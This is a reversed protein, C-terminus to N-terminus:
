YHRPRKASNGVEDEKVFSGRRPRKRSAGDEEEEDDEHAAGSAVEAKILEDYINDIQSPPRIRVVLEKRQVDFCADFGMRVPTPIGIEPWAAPTLMRRDFMTVGGISITSYCHMPRHSRYMEARITIVDRQLASAWALQAVARGVM